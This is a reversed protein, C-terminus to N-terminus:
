EGEETAPQESAEKAVEAAKEAAKAADAADKLDWQQNIYDLLDKRTYNFAFLLERADEDFGFTYAYNVEDGYVNYQLQESRTRRYMVDKQFFHDLLLYKKETLKNIVQKLAEQEKAKENKLDLIEQMLTKKLKGNEYQSIIFENYAELNITVTSQETDRM